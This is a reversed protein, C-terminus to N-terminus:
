RNKQDESLAEIFLVGVKWTVEKGVLAKQLAAMLEKLESASCHQRLAEAYASQPSSSDLGVWHAVRREAITRQVHYNHIESTAVRVGAARVLEEVREKSVQLWPVTKSMHAEAARLTAVLAPAVGHEAAVESLPARYRPLQEAMLLTGRPHARRSTASLLAGCMELEADATRAAHTREQHATTANDKLHAGSTARTLANHLVILDYEPASEVGVGAIAANTDAYQESYGVVPRELPPLQEVQPAMSQYERHQWFLVTVQGEPARRLAEWVLFSLGAGCLLLRSSRAIEGRQPTYLRSRIDTLMAGYHASARRLWHERARNPPSWSQQEEHEGLEAAALQIERRRTIEAIRHGEYGQEGPQYFIRGRLGAPLYRQAVWHDTYAHPYLYGKGHGFGRADRSSDRLAVPPEQNKEGEVAKLADFYGLTSNSKPANCLYLAAQSLFFQGEPLGVREFAAAAAEAVVLAQPDALGIDESALIMMRRFIYRPDEGAAVMRAMWYLSADPDSGRLSKIFASITDFHYDGDKDYLVAKRQISEEATTLDIAVSCGEPPPFREVSSEVALQIANMLSRADGECVQLLHREAEDALEVRYRGYGLERDHLVRQIIARLDHATLTNFKFVRSRSVLAHNVEFFPNHTTAGIFVVTGNEVWPLLADQQSKNWRHVEDVFLITRQGSRQYREKAEAIVRRVEAVGGLVANLSCFQKRTTNAIIRALTTKGCGPPGCLILSSLMDAQIARRLLRGAGIIHEQGVFEDLTRPRMRDALPERPPESNPAGM